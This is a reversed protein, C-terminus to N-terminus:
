FPAKARFKFNEEYDRPYETRQNRREMLDTFPCYRLIGEGITMAGIIVGILPMSHYPRRVMKSICIALLTFGSTIRFLANITGINQKM